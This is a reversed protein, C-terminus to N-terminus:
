LPAGCSVCTIAEPMNLAACHACRKKGENVFLLEVSEANILLVKEGPFAYELHERIQQAEAGSLKTKIKCIVM